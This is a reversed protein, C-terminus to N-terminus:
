IDTYTFPNDLIVYYLMDGGNSYSISNTQITNNCKSIGLM